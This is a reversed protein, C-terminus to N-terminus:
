EAQHFDFLTATFVGRERKKFVAKWNGNYRILSPVLYNKFKAMTVEMNVKFDYFGADYSLTYNRAVVEYTKDNFWTTMEDLVVNAEEGPKVQQKFIYCSTKNYEDLDISMNYKEAMDEDYIATKDGLFPIGRIRKGPNFFLMKLQEKHKEMGSKGAVTFHKGNVINTEGCISDNTFFLSAYMQATYYNFAGESNYMNGTVTEELKEMTRCNPTRKQITKSRLTAKPEGESNNMRIDNIATFGLVRLNRFAKYFSTDEKIRDIFAPVNLKNNVVVESLTIIKSGFQVISDQSYSAKALLFYIVLLFIKHVM